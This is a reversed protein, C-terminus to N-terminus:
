LWHRSFQLECDLRASHYTDRARIPRIWQIGDLGTRTPNPSYANHPSGVTAQYHGKRTDTLLTSPRAVRGPQPIRVITAVPSHLPRLHRVVHAPRSRDLEMHLVMGM